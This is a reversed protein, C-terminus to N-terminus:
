GNLFKENKSVKDLIINDEDLFHTSQRRIGLQVQNMEQQLKANRKNKRDSFKQRLDGVTNLNLNQVRYQVRCSSNSTLKLQFQTRISWTPHLAMHVCIRSPFSLKDAGQSVSQNKLSASEEESKLFIEKSHM